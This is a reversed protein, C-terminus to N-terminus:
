PSRDRMSRGRSCRDAARSTCRPAGTRSGRTAPAIAVASGDAFRITAGHDAPARVFGEGQAVAGDVTWDPARWRAIGWGGVLLAVAAAMALVARMATRSRGAVREAEVAEILRARGALHKVEDVEGDTAERALRALAGYETGKRPM